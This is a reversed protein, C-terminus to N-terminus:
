FEAYCVRMRHDQGGRFAVAGRPYECEILLVEPRYFRRLAPHERHQWGVKLGPEAPVHADRIGRACNPCRGIRGPKPAHRLSGTGRGCRSRGSTGATWRTATTAWTAKMGGRSRFETGAGTSGYWSAPCLPVAPSLVRGGYLAPRRPTDRCRGLRRPEAVLPRTVVHCRAPPHPRSGASAARSIRIVVPAM